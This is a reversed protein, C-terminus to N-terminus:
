FDPLNYEKHFSTKNQKQKKKKISGSELSCPIM